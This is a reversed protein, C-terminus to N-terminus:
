RRNYTKTISLKEWGPDPGCPSQIREIIGKETCVDVEAYRGNAVHMVAKAVKRAEDMTQRTLKTREHHGDKQVYRLTITPKDDM